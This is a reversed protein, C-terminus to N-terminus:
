RKTSLQRKKWAIIEADSKKTGTKRFLAMEEPTIIMVDDAAQSGSPKLHDKSRANNRTAQAAAKARKEMIMDRNALEFADKLDYGKNVKKAIEDWNPLKALTDVLDKMDKVEAIDVDPYASKLSRIEANVADRQEIQKAKIVDPHNAAEEKAIERVAEYDIGQEEYKQKKKEEALAQQYQDWTKIGLHGWQEVVWNDREKLQRLAEEKERRLEAFAKDKEFDRQPEPDAVELSEESPEAQQDELETSEEDLQPEAVEEINESPDIHDEM